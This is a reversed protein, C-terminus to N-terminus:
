GLFAILPLLHGFVKDRHPVGEQCSTIIRCSATPQVQQLIISGFREARDFLPRGAAPASNSQKPKIGMM